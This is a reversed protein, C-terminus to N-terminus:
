DLTLVCCGVTAALVPDEGDRILRRERIVDQLQTDVWSAVRRFRRQEYRFAPQGGMFGMIAPFPPVHKAVIAAFRRDRAWAILADLLDLGIGRGQYNVDRVDSDDLQGVHYCFIALTDPPLAPAHQGFDGWYRPDWLGDLSRLTPDYRRFQLQAVHRDGEFALIASAGLDAVTATVEDRTGQCRLPVHALDDAVLPRYRLPAIHRTATM